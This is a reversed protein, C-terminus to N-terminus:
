VASGSTTLGALGSEARALAVRLDRLLGLGAAPGDSEVCALFASGVVVGDATAAARRASAPDAIGFGVAVPLPTHRRVEAMQQELRADGAGAGTVGTRAILYVFGTAARALVAVRSPSSTPAVLTVYDLGEGRFAERVVPDEEHPLDCVLVGDVGAAAADAATREVGRRLLPNVYTFLLIPTDHRRRFAAALELVGELNMGGALARASARQITPGDAVPDSFPVGLEIVDAGAEAMGELLELSTHRDPFGATLFPLLAARGEASARAFAAPM